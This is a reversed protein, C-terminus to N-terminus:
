DCQSSHNLQYAKVKELLIEIESELEMGSYMLEELDFEDYNSLMLSLARKVIALQYNELDNM